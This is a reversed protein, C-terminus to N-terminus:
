SKKEMLPGYITEACKLCIPYCQPHKKPKWVCRCLDCRTMGLALLEERSSFRHWDTQAYVPIGEDLSIEYLRMEGM